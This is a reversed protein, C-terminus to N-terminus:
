IYTSKTGGYFVNTHNDTMQLKYQKHMEEQMLKINRRRVIWLFLNIAFSIAFLVIFIIAVVIWIQDYDQECPVTHEVATKIDISQVECNVLLFAIFIKLVTKIIIDKQM